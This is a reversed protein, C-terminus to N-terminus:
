VECALHPKVETLTGALDQPLPKVYVFRHIPPYPFSPSPDFAVTWGGQADSSEWLQRVSGDSHPTWTIRQRSKQGDAGISEGALVMRGDILGGELALLTGSNDVWTQHWVKRGVDYMNLSEGSYGRATSYREHIVCGGYEREIRNTGVVQGDPTSVNWEGVWFDFERFAAADCQAAGASTCIMGALWVCTSFTRRLKFRLSM